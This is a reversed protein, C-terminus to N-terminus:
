KKAEEAKVFAAYQAADMMRSPDFATAEVKAIFTDWPASNLLDPSDELVLNAETVIGSASSLVDTAAKVSEIVGLRVGAEVEDGALPLEVFVIDGLQEQAYDTIGIVIIDGEKIAWEHDKTYFRDTPIM